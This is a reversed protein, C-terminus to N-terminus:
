SKKPTAGEVLRYGEIRLVHVLWRDGDRRADYTARGAWTENAAVARKGIEIAQPEDVM